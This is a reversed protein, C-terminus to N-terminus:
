RDGGGANTLRIMRRVGNIWNERLAEQAAPIDGDCVARAIKVHEAAVRSVVTHDSVLLREYRHIAQRTNRMMEGLRQNPCGSTLLTHWADDNAAVHAFQVHEARFDGALTLLRRGIEPLQDTATLSVALGELASVIPALEELEEASFPKFRFGKGEVWDIQDAEALGILAERLPTRSVGLDAALQAESISQGPEVAGSRMRALMEDRVQSRLSHRRIKM